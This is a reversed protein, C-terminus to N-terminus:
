DDIKVDFYFCCIIRIMRKRNRSTYRMLSNFCLSVQIKVCAREQIRKEEREEREKKARKILDGQSNVGEVRKTGGLDIAQRSFHAGNFLQPKM